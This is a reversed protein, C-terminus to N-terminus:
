LRKMLNEAQKRDNLMAENRTSATLRLFEQLNTKAEDKRGGEAYLMGIRLFVMKSEPLLERRAQEKVNELENLAEQKRNQLYLMVALKETLAARYIPLRDRASRLAKEAGQLDRKDQLGVGLAEFAQFLTYANTQEPPMDIVKQVNALGEDFRGKEILNRGLGLYGLASGKIALSRTYADIAADTSKQASLEAGLQSWNLASRDDVLVSNQWLVLDSLWVRNYFFTQIGLLISVAVAFATLLKATKEGTFKEAQERIFPAVLILVGLLPLYLYRDHVIQERPFAGTNFSLVLPLLFLAAGIKQVFSRKALFWIGVLVVISISLPLFFNVPDVQEVPRLSYNIGLWYPFVTQKLYFVFVPPASLIAAFTGASDEAPQALRGLIAWRAIFYVAAAAAFLGAKNVPSNKSASSGRSFILFYVPFCLFAVEKAGLALLYFVSALGIDLGQKKGDQTNEAFWLSALFCFGFLLDPSGSIWAVSETHVPHVAFILTISFAILETIGWRRLLLFALLCVGIHLIINLLHWGWPAQGFFRFNLICWATFTPRWYNSAAASGDGKFAWVDSVLAKGILGNDQILVNGSIQRNDDYVFEGGLSNAYLLFIVVALIIPWHIEAKIKM